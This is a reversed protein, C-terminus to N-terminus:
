TVTKCDFKKVTDFRCFLPYKILLINLPLDFFAVPNGAM